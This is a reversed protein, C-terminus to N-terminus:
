DDTVPAPPWIVVDQRPSFLVHPDGDLRLGLPAVMSNCAVDAAARHLPWPRHHIDARRPPGRHGVTYLCYRETLWHEFSGPRANFAPGEPAYRVRLAARPGARRESRYDVEGSRRTMRMRAPFYPLRYTARAGVVATVSAADLSFFHIGPRDGLTVYTRVNLEEFRSVVPAPPLGHLRHGVVEFPTIGIWARGDFTDLPLADPVLRRLAETAVPWHLFALARWTQGILWPRGAPIPWPRHARVDLSTRQLRADRRM